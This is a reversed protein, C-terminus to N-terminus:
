KTARFPIIMRSCQRASPRIRELHRQIDEQSNGMAYLELIQDSFGEGIEREWKGVTQPNFDGRRDRSTQIEIDGVDTRLKKQRGKGNRKNAMQEAKQSRLHADMEGELSAEVLHRVLDKLVGGEGFLPKGEQLSAIASAEFSTYEFAEKEKKGKM